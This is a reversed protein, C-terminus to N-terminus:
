GVILFLGETKLLSSFLKGIYSLEERAAERGATNGADGSNLADGLAHLINRDNSAFVNHSVTSYSHRAPKTKVLVRSDCITNWDINMTPVIQSSKITLTQESPSSAPTSIDAHKDM